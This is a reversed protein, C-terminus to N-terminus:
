SRSLLNMNDDAIAKLIQVYESDNFRIIVHKKEEIAKRVSKLHYCGSGDSLATFYFDKCSCFKLDLDTWYESGKGVVIWLQRGSPMFLLQKISGSTVTNNIRSESM